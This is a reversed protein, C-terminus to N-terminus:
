GTGGPLSILQPWLICQLATRICHCISTFLTTTAQCGQGTSCDVQELATLYSYCKPVLSTRLSLNKLHHGTHPTSHLLQYFIRNISLSSVNLYNIHNEKLVRPTFIHGVHGLVWRAIPWETLPNEQCFRCRGAPLPDIDRGGGPRLISM